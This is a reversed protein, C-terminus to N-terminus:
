PLNHGAVDHVRVYSAGSEAAIKYAALNPALEMRNEGLFRKRSYGIMVPFDPVVKAFQLLQYNLEATKGFGIGPDLIIKSRDVGLLELQGVREYLEYRVQEIDDYLRDGLQHAAQIDGNVISPLHSIIVPLGTEAVVQRMKPDAMGTVDNIFFLGYEAAQRITQPHYSDLSFRIPMEFNLVKQLIAELRGWEDKDTQKTANPRTSEAGIDIMDAGDRWLKDICEIVKEVYSVDDRWLGDGSFSDPTLNLIGILKPKM